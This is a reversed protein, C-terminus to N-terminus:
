GVFQFCCVAFHTLSLICRSPLHVPPLSHLRLNLIVPCYTYFFKIIAFTTVTFRIYHLRNPLILSENATVAVSVYHHSHLILNPDGITISVIFYSEM